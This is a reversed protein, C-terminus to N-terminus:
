RRLWGTVSYRRFAAAKTVESVSHGQPVRFLNLRNLGTVMADAGGGDAHHM